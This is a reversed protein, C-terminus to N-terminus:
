WQCGYAALSQKAATEAQSCSAAIAAKGQPTAAAQQWAVKQQDIGHKLAAKAMDPVKSDICAPYKKMFSDCDRVGLDGSAVTASGAAPKAAPM